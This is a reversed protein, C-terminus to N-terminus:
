SSPAPDRDLVLWGGHHEHVQHRLGSARGWRDLDDLDVTRVHGWTEEAETELPVAVVVRRRALRVAEALVRAGDRVDVHELLHVALVTDYSRAAGPHRGADAVVTRLPTGLRPVVAELVSVTGGNIDSATVAFGREALRLAGFGFCCGLELVSRGRVLSEVRAHIPAFEAINGPGRGGVGAVAEDLRRLTNRYFLEWSRAPEEALTRVVGTFIRQFLEPGRLWGPRFLEDALLAALDDDVETPQLGHWLRVRAGEPLVDFHPTRVMHLQRRPRPTGGRSVQVWEDTYVGGPAAAFPDIPTTVEIPVSM